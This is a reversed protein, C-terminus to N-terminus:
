QIGLKYIIIAAAVVVGLKVIFDFITTWRNEQTATKQQVVGIGVEIEHIKESVEQQQKLIADIERQVYEGNKSELAVIREVLKSHNDVFKELKDDSDEQKESLSKLREDVRATLEFLGQLSQTVKDNFEKNIRDTNNM